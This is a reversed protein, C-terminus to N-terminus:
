LFDLPYNKNTGKSLGVMNENQIETKIKLCHLLRLGWNTGDMEAFPLFLGLGDNEWSLSSM